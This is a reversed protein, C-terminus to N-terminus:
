EMLNDMNSRLYKEAEINYKEKFQNSLNKYKISKGRKIYEWSKQRHLKKLEGTIWPKDQSSIKVTKVPCFLDLKEKLIKEFVAAQLSPTSEGRVGEWNETVIWEGFKRIGSEPLSRFTVTRYNRSPPTHRDTHPVCVPVYHDSPKGRAPDDPQIPPVIVPTKYYTFTNMLIIDLISGHRTPKDVVQKLRLGCNLLPRIDMYNKDAGMIIASDPYRAALMHLVGVLHDAMKANKNKNPPSYFSCVIITKFMAGPNKPRLLGWVVELNKPIAVPLKELLFKEQNAIIAAGGYAVGKRNPRRSTSIYKLGHLQLMKEIESQFNQNDNAEWIEQLFSCDISRELIDTTLSEKKPLFSRLNYSAVTPLNSSISVKDQKKKVPAGQTNRSLFTNHAQVQQGDDCALSVNSINSDLQQSIVDSEKEYM